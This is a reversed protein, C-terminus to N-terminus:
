GNTPLAPRGNEMDCLPLPPESLEAYPDGRKVLCYTCDSAPDSSGVQYSTTGAGDCELEPQRNGVIDFGYAYGGTRRFVLQDDPGYTSRGGNELAEEWDLTNYGSACSGFLIEYPEGLPYADLTALDAVLSTCLGVSCACGLTLRFSSDMEDTCSCGTESGAEGGAGGDSPTRMGSDVNM